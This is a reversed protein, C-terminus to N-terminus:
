YNRDRGLIFGSVAIFIGVWSGLFFSITLVEIAQETNMVTELLVM